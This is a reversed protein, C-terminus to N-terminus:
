VESIYSDHKELFSLFTYPYTNIPKGRIKTNVTELWFPLLGDLHPLQTHSNTYSEITGSNYISFASEVNTERKHEIRGEEWGVKTRAYAM